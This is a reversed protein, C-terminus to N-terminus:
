SGSALAQTGPWEFVLEGGEALGRWLPALEDLRGLVKAVRAEDQGTLAEPAKRLPDPRQGHRRRWMVDCLAALRESTDMQQGQASDRQGFGAERKKQKRRARALARANTSADPQGIFTGGGKSARGFVGDKLALEAEVVYHVLDHPIDDDYGPAPEMRQEAGDPQRIIVAYRRTGTRKFIVHM